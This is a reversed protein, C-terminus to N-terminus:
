RINEPDQGKMDEPRDARLSGFEELFYPLFPSAGGNGGSEKKKVMILRSDFPQLPYFSSGPIVTLDQLNM